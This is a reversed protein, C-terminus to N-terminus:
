WTSRRAVERYLAEHASTMARVSFQREFKERNAQRVRQALEHDRSAQLICDALAAPDRPEVVYGNVGHEVVEPNGGVRTALIPKGVAMAELLALPLGEWLSPLVYLDFASLLQPIDSRYGLFRVHKELGRERAEGILEERLPGDGAIAFRVRPEQEVVQKAAQLLYTIGKQKSLVVATGVLFNGDGALSERVSPDPEFRYRTGDIGNHIVRLPLRVGIDRTLTRQLDESVAVIHDALRVYYAFKRRASRSASYIQNHESYVFAPRRRGLKAGIGGYILPATNHAHVVDVRNRQLFAQIRVLMSPDFRVPGFRRAGSKDLVLTRGEPLEVEDFLKGPGDLCILSPEFADRDLNRLLSIVVKELGGVALSNVVMCIKLKNM